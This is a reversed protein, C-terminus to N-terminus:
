PPQTLLSFLLALKVHHCSTDQDHWPPTLCESVRLEAEEKQIFTSLGSFLDKVGMCQYATCLVTDQTAGVEFLSCNETSYSPQHLEQQQGPKKEIKHYCLSGQTPSAKLWICTLFSVPFFFLFISTFYGFRLHHQKQDAPVIMSMLYLSHWWSSVRDQDAQVSLHYKVQLFQTKKHLISKWQM